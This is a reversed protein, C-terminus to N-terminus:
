LTDTSSHGKLICSSFHRPRIINVISGPLVCFRGSAAREMEMTQEKPSFLSCLRSVLKWDEDGRSEPIMKLNAINKKRKRTIPDCTTLALRWGARYNLIVKFENDEEM